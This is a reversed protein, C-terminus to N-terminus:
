ALVHCLRVQRPDFTLESLGALLPFWFYVHEDRDIFRLPRHQSAFAPPLLLPAAPLTTNPCAPCCPSLDQFSPLALLCARSVHLPHGTCTCIVGRLLSSVAYSASTTLPTRGPESARVASVSTGAAATAQGAAAGFASAPTGPPRGSAEAGNARGRDGDGGDPEGGPGVRGPQPTGPQEPLGQPGPLGETSSERSISDMGGGGGGGSSGATGGGSPGQDACGDGSRMFSTSAEPNNDIAVVRLPHHQLSQPLTGEPLMNVDGIAGEALKM